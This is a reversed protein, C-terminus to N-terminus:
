RPHNCSPACRMLKKGDQFLVWIKSPGATQQVLGLGFIPHNILGGVAFRGDMAYNVAGAQNMGPQLTEWELRQAAGPDAKKRPGKKIATATPDKYNHEGGCTNCKVRAPREAVLAVLTHNLIKRCKTCRAEISDGVSLTKNKM